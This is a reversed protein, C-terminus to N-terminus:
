DVIRLVKAERFVLWQWHLCFGEIAAKANESVVFIGWDPDPPRM